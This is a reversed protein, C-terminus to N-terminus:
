DLLRQFLGPPDTAMSPESIIGWPPCFLFLFEAVRREGNRLVGIRHVYDDSTKSLLFNNLVVDRKEISITITSVALLGVGHNDLKLLCHLLIVPPLCFNNRQCQDSLDDFPVDIVSAHHLPLREFMIVNHRFCCYNTKFVACSM